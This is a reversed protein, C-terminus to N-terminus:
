RRGFKRTAAQFAVSPDHVLSRCFSGGASFVRHSKAWLIGRRWHAEAVRRVLLRRHQPSLDSASRLIDNWLLISCDWHQLSDPGFAGTLREADGSAGKVVGGSFAVACMPHTLGLRVYLHTDEGAPLREWLGGAELFVSRQFISFPLLMPQAEALVVDPTNELVEFPTRASFGTYAWRNRPPPFAEFEADSFYVAASGATAAIAAAMHELYGPLWEDDSDLFALWPFRAERVGRNRAAAAGANVQYIYRIANGYEGVREATSDQSGDDVVIIETPPFTQRLVSDIACCVASARNYSPIVVSIRPLYGPETEKDM